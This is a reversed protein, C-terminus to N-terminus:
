WPKATVLLINWPLITGDDPGTIWPRAETDLEELSEIRLGAAIFTGLFAALSLNRSGATATLRSPAAGDFRRRADGYGSRIDITSKDRESTRNIFPAVFCPHTGVYAFRGGPQLVRAVEGVAAAFDDIDRHVFAAVAVDVAEDRVPLAAADAHVLLVSRDSAVRLQDVSIDFGIPRLGVSRLAGFHLGTGCGVDIVTSGPPAFEAVSAALVHAFPRMFTAAWEDYWDALGDYRTEPV